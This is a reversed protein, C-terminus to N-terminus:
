LANGSLLITSKTIEKERKKKVSVMDKIHRLVAFSKSSSHFPPPFFFGRFAFRLITSTYHVGTIGCKGTTSLASVTHLVTYKKVLYIM